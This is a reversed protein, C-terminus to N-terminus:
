IKHRMDNQLIRLTENIMREKTFRAATIKANQSLTEALVKERLLRTIARAMKDTNNYPVELANEGDKIIERNGGAGTAVVPTGAAMAEILLHSFGEYATNLVFADAARLYQFVGAHSQSGVLSVRSGLAYNVIRSELKLQEPGSGIIILKATPENIIIDSMSEILAAFGKWPVLRGASLIIKENGSVGLVRRAEEKLPVDASIEVANAIVAIREKKVGWQAVVNALYASPVIVRAAHRAVFSEIARLIEVRWGYKKQLFDDLLDNV